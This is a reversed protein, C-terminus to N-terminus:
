VHELEMPSDNIILFLVSVSVPISLAEHKILAHCHSDVLIQCLDTLAGVRPPGGTAKHVAEVVKAVSEKEKRLFCLCFVGFGNKARLAERRPEGSLGGVVFPARGTQSLM